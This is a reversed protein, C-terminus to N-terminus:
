AAPEGSGHAVEDVFARMEYMDNITLGQGIFAAGYVFGILALCIPLLLMALPSEDVTLKAFGYM